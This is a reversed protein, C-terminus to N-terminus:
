PVQCGPKAGRIWQSKLKGLYCLHPCEEFNCPSLIKISFSELLDFFVNNPYHICFNYPNLTKISFSELLGFAVNNPYHICFNHPNLTKTSFSELLGFFANNPYQICFNYPNLIKNTYRLRVYIRITYSKQTSCKPLHQLLSSYFSPLIYNFEHNFDICVEEM